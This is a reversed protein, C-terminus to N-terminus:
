RTDKSMSIPSLSFMQNMDFLVLFSHSSFGHPERTALCGQLLATHSRSSDGMIKFTLIVTHFSTQDWRYWRDAWHTASVPWQSSQINDVRLEKNWYIIVTNRQPHPNVTWKKTTFLFMKSFTIKLIWSLIILKTMYTEERLRWSIDWYYNMHPRQSDLMSMRFGSHGVTVILVVYLSEGTTLITGQKEPDGVTRIICSWLMGLPFADCLTVVVLGIPFSLFRLLTPPSPSSSSFSLCHNLFHFSLVSFPTATKSSYRGLMVPPVLGPIRGSITKRM